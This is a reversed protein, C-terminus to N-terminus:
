ISFPIAPDVSFLGTVVDNDVAVFDLIEVAVLLNDVRTVNAQGTVLPSRNLAANEIQGM